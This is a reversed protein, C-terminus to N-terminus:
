ASITSVSFHALQLSAELADVIVERAEKMVDLNAVDAQGVNLAREDPRVGLHAVEEVRHVPAERDSVQEEPLVGLRVAGLHDAHAFFGVRDGRAQDDVALLSERREVGHKSAPLDKVVVVALSFDLYSEAGPVALKVDSVGRDAAVGLPYR